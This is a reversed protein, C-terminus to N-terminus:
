SRVGAGDLMDLAARRRPRPANDQNTGVGVAAAHKAKLEAVGSM